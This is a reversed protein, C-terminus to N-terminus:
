VMMSPPQELPVTPLEFPPKKKKKKCKACGMVHNIDIEDHFEFAVPVQNMPLGMFSSNGFFDQKVHKDKVSLLSGSFFSM